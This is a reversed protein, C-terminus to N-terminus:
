SKVGCAVKAFEHVGKSGPIRLATGRELYWRGPANSAVFDVRGGANRALVGQPVIADPRVGAEGRLFYYRGEVAGARMTLDARLIIMATGDSYCGAYAQPFVPVRPKSNLWFQWAGLCLIALLAARVTWRKM